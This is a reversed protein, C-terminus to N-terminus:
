TTRPRRPRLTWRASCARAQRRGITPRTRSPRERVSGCRRPMSVTPGRARWGNSSTRRSSSRGRANPRRPRTQLSALAPHRAAVTLKCTLKCIREPLLRCPLDPLDKAACSALSNAFASQCCGARCTQCIKQPAAAADYPGADLARAQQQAESVAGRMQKAKEVSGTNAAEVQERTKNANATRTRMREQHTERMKKLYAQHERTAKDRRQKDLEAEQEALRANHFDASGRGKVTKKLETRQQMVSREWAQEAQKVERALQRNKEKHRAVAERDNNETKARLNQIRAHQEEAREEMLRKLEEKRERGQDAIERNQKSVQYKLFMGRPVTSHGFLAHLQLRAILSDFPSHHAIVHLRLPAAVCRTM